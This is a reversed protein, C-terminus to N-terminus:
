SRQYYFNSEGLLGMYYYMIALNCMADIEILRENFVWALMLVKKFCIIGTEYEKLEKHLQGLCKYAKVKMKLSDLEYGIDRM